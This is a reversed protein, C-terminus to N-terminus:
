TKIKHNFNIADYFTNKQWKNNVKTLNDSTVYKYYKSIVWTIAWWGNIIFELGGHM